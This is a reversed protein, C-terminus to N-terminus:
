KSEEEAAPEPKADDAPATWGREAAIEHGLLSAPGATPGEDARGDPFGALM